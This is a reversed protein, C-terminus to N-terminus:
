LFDTRFIWQFSQHQLQLESVKAVQHLSSVWQFLGQDQSLNFARPSPFSLPHSPQIADGVWVWIWHTPPAMWGDWERDDGEGGAKLRNRCWPRKWHTPEKCWTALANSNWSGDTRGIFMWSQDRKPHVPQIKKCDLPSELTKELVVTWFCWNKVAWSKKYDLVWM